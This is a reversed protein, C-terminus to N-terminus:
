SRVQSRPSTSPPTVTAAYRTGCTIAYAATAPSGGTVPSHAEVPGSSTYATSPEDRRSDIPGSDVVASIVADATPAIVAPFGSRYAAM